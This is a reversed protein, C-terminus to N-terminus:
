WFGQQLLRGTAFKQLDFQSSIQSRTQIPLLTLGIEMKTPVYTSNTYNTKSNNQSVPNSVTTNGKIAGPFLANNTLRNVSAIAGLAGTAPPGSSQQRRNDLNIGYNNFGNARIYDVDPPLSYNFSAVVCPNNNFQYQGLGSLFVLPPPTGALPDTAGYFMKTVSKFFTIVALLYEAERTDQATFTGRISIQDVSSGRYFYGRYNSHTLDVSDYKAQYATEISPTYPFVVGNTRALPGLISKEADKARYLYNAGNALSLRVRWDAAAPLNVRDNLTNQTQADVTLAKTAGQETPQAGFASGEQAALDAAQADEIAQIEASSGADVPPAFASGEQAALEAAATDEIAQTSQALQEDLEPNVPPPEAFASGEAAALEAAQNDEIAQLAEDGVPTPAEVPPFASGEQAALDADVADQIARAEPDDLTSVPPPEAFASGEAAALEAAEADEIAQLAEDGVPTPAEVSPFASGEQAALDADVADQIARAEPDDLTNVPEPLDLGNIPEDPPLDLGNVAPDVPPPTQGNDPGGAGALYADANAEIVLENEATNSEALAIYNEQAANNELLEARREDSINPDALEANNRAIIEQANAIGAQNAEIAANAESINRLNTNDQTQSLIAADAATQANTAAIEAETPLDLGNVNPNVPEPLDLGNTGFEPPLELGNVAPDVQEPLDLGNVPEEAPLDLGNIAPDVQEPLDLGNVPEEAPLDLGNVAPNVSAAAPTPPTPTTGFLGGLFSLANDILPVGTKITGFGPTAALESGPLQPIGLRARIYPDTPDAGGLAELQEPSLGYYPDNIDRPQTAFARGETQALLAEEYAQLAEDGAASIEPQAFARGEQQALQAEDFAQLAEDGDPLVPSAQFNEAYTQPPLDYAAPDQGPIVTAPPPVSNLGPPGSAATFQAEEAIFRQQDLQGLTEQNQFLVSEERRIQNTIEATRAAAQIQQAELQSIEADSAGALRADIVQNELARDARAAAAQQSQLSEINATIAVNEARIDRSAAAIQIETELWQNATSVNNQAPPNEAEDLLRGAEEATLERATVTPPVPSVARANEAQQQAIVAPDSLLQRASDTIITTGRLAGVEQPDTAPYIAEIEADTLLKPSTEVLVPPPPPPVYTASQGPVVTAPPPLSNQNPPGSAAFEAKVELAGRQEQLEATSQRSQALSSRIQQQAQSTVVLDNTARQYATTAAAIAAPDGIDEADRLADLAVQQRQAQTDARVRLQDLEAELPAREARQVNIIETIEDAAQQYEAATTVNNQASATTTPTAAAPQSAPTVTPPIPAPPAPVFTASQGPTTTAPPPLSNQNPPGQEAFEAKVELAGRQDQLEATSQRSQALVSRNQQIAAATANVEGTARAYATRSQELFATDGPDAEAARLTNLASQQRAILLEQRNRLLEQEAEIPAREARQANIIETIEDAAQQYEAATIVNNQASVNSTAM